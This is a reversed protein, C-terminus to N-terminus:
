EDFGHMLSRLQKFTLMKGQDGILTKHQDRAFLSIYFFLLIKHQRSWATDVQFASDQALHV